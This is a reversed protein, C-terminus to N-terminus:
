RSRKRRQGGKCVRLVRDFGENVYRYSKNMLSRYSRAVTKPPTTGQMSYNMKFWRAAEEFRDVARECGPRHSEQDALGRAKGWMEDVRDDIKTLWVRKKPM